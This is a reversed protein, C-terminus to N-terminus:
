CICPAGAAAGTDGVIPAALKVAGLSGAFGADGFSYFGGDADVLWYGSGTATPVLGVVPTTRKGGALSGFSGASGFPFVAGDAGVLWYGIGAPSPVIAVIPAHLHVGALSGLAPAAGFADVTGDARVLWYGPGNLFRSTAGGIVPVLSRVAGDSGAFGFDGFAFLGGDRAVLAYGKGTASPIIGVVPAALRLAGTSGAFPASGYAFVGGDSGVQWYGQGDPPEAIAVIPARPHSTSASGLYSAAGFAFVGGDRSTARYGAAFGLSDVWLSRVGGNVYGVPGTWAQYALHTAGAADHFPAPGSPGVVPGHTGWWPGQVSEDTCPGSPSPCVAYGIGADPSNFQNAGYFLFYRGDLAIMAPGEITPAQWPATETLLPSPSGVLTLGDASLPQSWLTSPQGIADDDSKWVLYLHGDPAVFPSPDISGGDALQCIFPATSTDQFPGGPTLSTAVSICQRGSSGDHVTYYMVFRGEVQAVGPAWTMGAVAWAPLNPLADGPTNGHLLDALSLVQINRGASDTSYAWYASGVTIVDPDPFDASYLPGSSPAAAAHATSGAATAATVVPGSFAASVAVCLAAVPEFM